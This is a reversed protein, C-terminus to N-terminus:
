WTCTCSIGVEPTLKWFPFSHLYLFKLESQESQFPLWKFKIVVTENKDARSRRQLIERCSFKKRRGEKRGERCRKEGTERLFAAM